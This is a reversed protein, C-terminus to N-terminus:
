DGEEDASGYGQYDFYGDVWDFGAVAEDFGEGGGDVV